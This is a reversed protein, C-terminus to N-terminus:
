HAAQKKKKKELNSLADELWCFGEVLGEGQLASSEQIRYIRSKHNRSIELAQELEVASM